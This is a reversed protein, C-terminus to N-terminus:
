DPLEESGEVQRMLREYDDATNVDIPKPGEVVVRVVADTSLSELFPWLAKRGRLRRVAAYSSAGLAVPHGKGDTYEVWGASRGSTHMEVHLRNIAEPSVLPMDALLVVICDADPVADMGVILSSMNGLSAEANHVVRASDGVEQVVDAEHFGTVVVVERLEADRVASLVSGIMSVPGVRMLQKPQGM